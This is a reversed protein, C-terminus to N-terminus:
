AAFKLFLNSPSIIWRGDELVRFTKLLVVASFTWSILLNEFSDITAIKLLQQLKPTKEYWVYSTLRWLQWSISVLRAFWNVPKQIIAVKTNWSNIFYKSIKLSFSFPVNNLLFIQLIRLFIGTNSDRKLLTAARWAQFKILFLSLCLHKETFIGFNKLVDMKFFMQFCSSSFM